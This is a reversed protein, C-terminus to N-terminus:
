SRASLFTAVPLDPVTETACISKASKLTDKLRGLLEASLSNSGTITYAMEAALKLALAEVLLSDYVTPDTLRATYMLNVTEADTLLKRGEITFKYDPDIAGGFRPETLPFFDGDDFQIALPRLCYPQSPLSYQHAYGFAPSETDQILTQRARACNWPFQRLLADRVLPWKLKATKASKTDQDISAITNEGIHILASNIISLESEAM